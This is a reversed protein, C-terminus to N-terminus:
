PKKANYLREDQAGARPRSRTPQVVCDRKLSHQGNGAHKASELLMIRVARDPTVVARSRNVIKRLGDGM